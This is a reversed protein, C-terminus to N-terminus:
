PSTERLDRLLRHVLEGADNLVLHGTRLLFLSFSETTEARWAAMAEYGVFRDQAGGIFTLPVELPPEPEYGVREVLRYDARIVPEFLEMLAPDDLVDPAIGGYDAFRTFLEDRPLLHMPEHVAHVAPAEISSVILMAPMPKGRHRLRRALHFAIISGSCHGFLVYPRELLPTLVNELADLLVPMEDIPPEDLRNERAPLRVACLEVGPPLGDLWANFAAAGGAIHPLCIIRLWPATEAHPRALWKRRALRDRGALLRYGSTPTAGTAPPPHVNRVIHRARILIPM